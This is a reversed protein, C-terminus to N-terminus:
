GTALTLVANTGSGPSGALRIDGGHLEAIRRVIALGLGVGFAKTSFLPEFVHPLRDPPIGPGQDRVTIQVESDTASTEVILETGVADPEDMAQWANTVLNLVASRLKERDVPIEVNADLRRTLTRGRPIELEDLVENLWADLNTSVLEPSRARTLDLLEEIIHDCRRINRETREFVDALDPAQDAVTEKITYFSAEITGLPNRLEHAVSATLQGLTALRQKRLLEDQATQLEATRERVLEELHVRHKELEREARKRESIDEFVTGFLDKGPAFASIRYYRDEAPFELEFSEPIGTEAVRSFEALNPAEQTDFAETALRGVAAHRPVGAHKEFAPNADLIRYNVAQGSADRVLEYLGVGEAMTEYLTRYRRESERLAQEARKRDSIDMIVGLMSSIDGKENRQAKGFTALWRISGDPLVIRFELEHEKGEDACAQVSKMWLEIDDPHIQQVVDELRGGFQSPDMGCIAETEESWHIHNGVLDWDWAGVGALRHALRLRAEGRRVDRDARSVLAFVLGATIFIYFIGKATQVTSLGEPTHVFWTVVTDSFAIWTIGFALYIFTIRLPSLKTNM